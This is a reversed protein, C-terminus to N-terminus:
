LPWRCVIKTENILLLTVNLIDMSSRPVYNETWVRPTDFGHQVWDKSHIGPRGLM